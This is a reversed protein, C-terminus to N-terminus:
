GPVSVQFNGSLWGDKGGGNTSACVTWGAAHPDWPRWPVLEASIGGTFREDLQNFQTIINGSGRGGSRTWPHHAPIPPSWSDTFSLIPVRTSCCALMMVLYYIELDLKNKISTTEQNQEMRINKKRRFLRVVLWNSGVTKVIEVELGMHAKTHAGVHTKLRDM